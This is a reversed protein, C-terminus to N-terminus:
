VLLDLSGLASSVLTGRTLDQATRRWHLTIMHLAPHLRVLQQAVMVLSGLLVHEHLAPCISCSSRARYHAVPTPTVSPLLCLHRHLRSPHGQRQPIWCSPRWGVRRARECAHGCLRHCAESLRHAVSVATNTATGLISPLWQLTAVMGGVATRSRLPRNQTSDTQTPPKHPKLM